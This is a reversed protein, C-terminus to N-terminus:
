TSAYGIININEGVSAGDNFSIIGSAFTINALNVLTQGLQIAIISLFTKTPTYEDVTGIVGTENIVLLPTFTTGDASGEWTQLTNNWRIAPKNAAATNAQITKDGDVGSGVAFTNQNTGTDTNQQHAFLGASRLSWFTGEEPTNGTSPGANIYEWINNGFTVFDGQSYETAGSYAPLGLDSGPPIQQLASICDAFLIMNADMESYSLTSGKTQYAPNSTIRLLLSALNSM